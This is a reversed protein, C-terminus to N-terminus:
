ERDAARDLSAVLERVRDSEARPAVLVRDGYAAVVLDDVGVVGVHADAGVLVNGTADVAHTEGAVDNGAGDTPLHRGVADWTGLDDWEFDAPVVVADATREMVAVDVSVPDVAAFGAAPDGRDLADVLSALPSDRAARLLATPRWAFVGANWLWGADLYERATERDPKERFAEVPARGGSFRGPAVYGYGTAPRDPDVGVCVLGDTEVAARCARRATAAFAGAVHHDTPLVVMACDGFTERVRHAAYVTAPGTDRPAPEVFVADDGLAARVRDAYAARTVACVHDAFGARDVAREFLTRDGGFSRFQKPTAPTSAPYLRTGTGGALLCAVTTM